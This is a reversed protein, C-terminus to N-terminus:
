SINRLIINLYKLMREKFVLLDEKYEFTQESEIKQLEDFPLM